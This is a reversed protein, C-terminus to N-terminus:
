ENLVSLKEGNEAKGMKANCEELSEDKGAPQFETNTNVRACGWVGAFGAEETLLM